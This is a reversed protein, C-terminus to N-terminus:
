SLRTHNSSWGVVEHCGQLADQDQSIWKFKAGIGSGCSQSLSHRVNEAVLNQYNKTGQFTVFINTIM